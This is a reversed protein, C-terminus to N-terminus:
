RRCAASSGAVATAPRERFLLSHPEPSLARRRVSDDYSVAAVDIAFAEPPSPRRLMALLHDRFDPSTDISVRGQLYMVARDKETQVRIQLNDTM